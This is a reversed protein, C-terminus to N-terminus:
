RALSLYTRPTVPIEQIDRVLWFGEPPLLVHGENMCPAGM